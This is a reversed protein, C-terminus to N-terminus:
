PTLVDKAWSREANYWDVLAEVGRHLDYEPEWGLLEKAKTVDAWNSRMDAQIAPGYEVIAKKGVV